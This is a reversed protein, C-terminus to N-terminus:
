RVRVMVSSLEKSSGGSGGGEGFGGGYGGGVLLVAAAAAAAAVVVVVGVIDRLVMMLVGDSVLWLFFRVGDFVANISVISVVFGHHLVFCGGVLPVFLLSIFGGVFGIFWGRVDTFGHHLVFCGGVMFLLGIFGGVFGIFWGHVDVLLGFDSCGL